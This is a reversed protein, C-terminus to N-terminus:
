FIGIHCSNALCTSKKTKKANKDVIQIKCANLDTEGTSCMIM